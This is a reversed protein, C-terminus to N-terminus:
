RKPPRTERVVAGFADSLVLVALREAQGAEDTNLSVYDFRGRLDTYGDKIFGVGGGAARAYVKVYAGPVPRGTEAQTVVLQGYSEIMQVRLTNAYYAQTKRVGGALAEVMVNKAAFEPPLEVTTHNQGAAVAVPRSAVPRIFAFQAAGEQLFPNRSFLLEIDMPYFNLTVEAVNRTDLRIRGAEVLLELAPETAALAGQAQDRSEANVPVAGREAGAIEDLQALVQAFRERWRAVGEDAHAKALARAQELDGTYFALYAALYDYQLREAVEDRKVRGFTELAEAVRDQLALYYAVALTDAASLRSKYRLVTM